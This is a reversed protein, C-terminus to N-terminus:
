VAEKRGKARLAQQYVEDIQRVMTRVDFPELVSQRGKEGMQQRLQPDKLLQICRASLRDIDGPEAIFGNSGEEIAEASGDAGTAVVPVRMALAQPIVRPLGEWLSTLLFVDMASLMRGVDRRLGPMITRESLGEKELLQEVKPRLPGDGVLLFHCDPIERAVRSAVRVWDLPNKQSSFRGVNGLVRADEPLGLERRVQKGDFRTPDFQDLPLASRILHYDEKRGIGRRVGKEIDRSTVVIMADTWRICMKELTVYFWRLGPSMHDHFGWGHVTHVIVPVGALRAALRGLIGAKSSHTHVVQYKNHRMIQWMKWLAPLDKIPSIERVLEPLIDLPVDRERVEEILSGEAGTQSGSLVDVQYRGPDLLAATFMTNEQAGGVILRTIVHLVKIRDM